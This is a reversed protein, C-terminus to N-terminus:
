RKIKKFGYVTAMIAIVGVMFLTERNVSIELQVPELKINSNIDGGVNM